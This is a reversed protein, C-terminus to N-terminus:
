PTSGLVLMVPTQSDLGTGATPIQATVQLLSADAKPDQIVIPVVGATKLAALASKPDAGRVNPMTGHSAARDQPAHEAASVDVGGAGAASVDPSRDGGGLLLAFLLIALIGLAAGALTLMPKTAFLPRVDAPIASQWGPPAGWSRPGRPTLPTERPESRFQPRRIPEPLPPEWEPEPEPELEISQPPAGGPSEPWGLRGLPDLRVYPRGGSGAKGDIAFRMRGSAGADGSEESPWAPSRGISPETLPAADREVPDRRARAAERPGRPRGLRALPPLREDEPPSDPPLMALLETSDLGLYQGYSRLFGRVYVPASFASFREDELAQLHHRPIHTEREATAHSINRAERAEKLTAGIGTSAQTEHSREPNRPRPAVFREARNRWARQDGPFRDSRVTL